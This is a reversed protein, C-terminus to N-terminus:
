TNWEVELVKVFENLMIEQSTESDLLHSPICALVASNNSKWKQLMFGGLEFLELLQNQLMITKKISDEGMLGNEIYFTNIVAQAAMITTLPM